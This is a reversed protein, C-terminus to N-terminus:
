TYILKKRKIWVLFFFRGWTGATMGLHAPKILPNLFHQHGVYGGSM